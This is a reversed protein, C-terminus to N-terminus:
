LMNRNRIDIDIMTDFDAFGRKDIINIKDLFKEFLGKQGENGESIESLIYPYKKGIDMYQIIYGTLLYNIHVKNEYKMESLSLIYLRFSDLYRIHTHIIREGHFVRVGGIPCYIFSSELYEKKGGEMNYDTKAYFEHLKRCCNEVVNLINEILYQFIYKGKDKKRWNIPVFLPYRNYEKKKVIRCSFFEFHTAILDLYTDGAKTIHVKISDSNNDLFSEEVEDYNGIKINSFSILQNWYTNRRINYMCCLAHQIREKPILHELDRYLCNLDISKGNKINSSTSNSLFTLIMRADSYPLTDMEVNAVGINKFLDQHKFIDWIGRYIMGRAGYLFRHSAVEECYKHLNEYLLILYQSNNLLLELCTVCRRYDNNFMVFISKRKSELLDQLIVKIKEGNKYLSESVNEMYELFEIRKNVIEVKDYADSIDVPETMDMIADNIHGNAVKSWTSERSCIIFSFISSYSLRVNDIEIISFNQLVKNINRSFLYYQEFFNEVIESNVLIDINDICYIKRIIKKNEEFEAIDLLIICCLIQGFFLKTIENIFNSKERKSYPKSKGLVFLKRFKDMFNGLNNKANFGTNISKSNKKYLNYFKTNINSNEKDNNLFREFLLNAYKEIYPPIEINSTDTDLEMLNFDVDKMIFQLRNIFTTKGCGQYGLLVVTKKTTKIIATEILHFYCNAEGVNSYLHEFFVTDELLGDYNYENGLPFPTAKLYYGISNSNIMKTLENSLKEM